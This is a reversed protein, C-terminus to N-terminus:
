RQLSQNKPRSKADKSSVPTENKIYTEWVDMKDEEGITRIVKAPVGAVISNDPVDSTVVAGAAVISNEGVTVGGIITVSSCIWCNKKLTM